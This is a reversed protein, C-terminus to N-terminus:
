SVAPLNSLPSSSTSSAPPIVSLSCSLSILGGEDKTSHSFSTSSAPPLVGPDGIPPVGTDFLFCSSSSEEVLRTSLPNSDEWEVFSAEAELCFFPLTTGCIRRALRRVCFPYLM